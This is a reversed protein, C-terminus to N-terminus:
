EGEDVERAITNLVKQTDCFLQFSNCHPTIVVVILPHKVAIAASPYCFFVVRLV